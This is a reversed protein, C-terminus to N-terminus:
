KRHKATFDVKLDYTDRDPVITTEFPAYSGDPIVLKVRLIPGGQSVNTVYISAPTIKDTNIGNIWVQAGPPITQIFLQMANGSRPLAILLLVVPVIGWVIWKKM